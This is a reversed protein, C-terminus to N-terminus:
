CKNAYIWLKDVDNGNVNNYIISARKGNIETLDLWLAINEKM